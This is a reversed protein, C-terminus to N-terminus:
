QQQKISIDILQGEIDAYEKTGQKYLAQRKKLNEVTIDVMSDTYKQETDLALTRGEIIIEPENKLYAEKLMNQRQLLELALAAEASKDETTKNSKNEEIGLKQLAQLEENLKKIKRNKAIIEAKTSEAMKEAEAIEDKKAQILSYTEKTGTKLGEIEQMRKQALKDLKAILADTEKIEEEAARKKDVAAVRKKDYESRPTTNINLNSLEEDADDIKMQAKNRRKAIKMREEETAQLEIKKQLMKLYENIAATNHNILKGEKDLMGNYEPMLEKLEAIKKRRIENSLNENTIAKVLLEIKSKQEAFLDKTKEAINNYAKQEATLEKTKTSANYIAVGIGAIAAMILGWPTKMFAIRLAEQAAYALTIKKTLVDHALGKAYTALTSATQAATHLKEKITLAITSKLIKNNWFDVLAQAAAKAKTVSTYTVIAATLAIIATKFKVVFNVASVAAGTFFSNFFNKVDNVTKGIREQLMEYEIAAAKVKGQPTNALAENVGGVSSTVVDILVAAREAETGYKLIKEQAEDFKYGYRSLGGVQGDMVKGLMTAIQAAQEQSANVGYQQALMDNMVPILEKLTETKTLYTSLEQAGAIQTNKSIVGLKAQAEALEIISDVEEKRANMTNGMVQTLKAQAEMFSLYSKEGEVFFNKVQSIAFSLAGSVANGIFAGISAIKMLNKEGFANKTTENLENLKKKTAEIEKQAEKWAPTNPNITKLERNLRGLHTTLQGISMNNIDVNKRLNDYKRYLDEVQAAKTRFEATNRKGQKELNLLEKELKITETEIKKLNSAAEQGNIYLNYRYTKTNSAM